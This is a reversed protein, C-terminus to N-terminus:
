LLMVANLRPSATCIEAPVAATGIATSRKSGQGIAGPDRAAGAACLAAYFMAEFGNTPM